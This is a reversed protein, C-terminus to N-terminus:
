RAVRVMAPRLVRNGLMYGQRVDAIIQGSEFDPNEEYSIAEHILPDFSQGKTEIPAVGVEELVGAFKHAVMAVGNRWETWNGKDGQPSNDLALRLDDLVPLLRALLDANASVVMEARQAETRRKYNALEARSRQWGDLYEAVQKQLEAVQEELSPEEAAAQTEIVEQGVSETETPQSAADESKTTKKVM